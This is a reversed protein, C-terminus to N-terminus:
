LFLIGCVSDTNLNAANFYHQVDSRMIYKIESPIGVLLDAQSRAIGRIRSEQKADHMAVVLVPTSSQYEGLQACVRDLAIRVDDDNLARPLAFPVADGCCSCPSTLSITRGNKRFQVQDNMGKPPVQLLQWRTHVKSDPNELRLVSRQMFSQSDYTHASPVTVKKRASM